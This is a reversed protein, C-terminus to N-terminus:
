FSFHFHWFLTNVFFTDFLFLTLSFETIDSVFSFRRWSFSSRFYFLLFLLGIQHMLFKSSYHQAFFSREFCVQSFSFSCFMQDKHCLKRYKLYNFCNILFFWWSAHFIGTVLFDWWCEFFNGREEEADQCNTLLTASKCHPMLDLPQHVVKSM